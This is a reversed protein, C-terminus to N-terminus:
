NSAGSPIVNRWNSSIVMKANPFSELIRFLNSVLEFTGDYKRHLVGDFDLFIVLENSVQISKILSASKNVQQMKLGWTM